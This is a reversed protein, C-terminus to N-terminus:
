DRLSGIPVIHIGEPLTYAHNNGVICILASPLAMKMYPDSVTANYEEIERKIELLHKSAEKAQFDTLKVEILAYRGDKLVLVADCELGIRDRYYFIKGGFASSYVRLDRIVLSEFFFGYDLNNDLLFDVNLNLAAIALSPDCFDKKIATQMNVKSKFKPSWPPVDELVFLNQLVEKYSYLTRDSLDFDAGNTDAFIKRNKTLSCINKAYVTLFRRALVPDREVGDFDKIDHEVVGDLYDKPIKVAEDPPLGISAPFGGRVTAFVLDRHSLTSDLGTVSYGPEFLRKLSIKGNSEKSEFLSLPRMLFEVFRGTGSHRIPAIDVGDKKPHPITSGTLLYQGPANFSDDIQEKIENWIDPYNQWEDFLIPKEKGFIFSPDAHLGLILNDLQRSSGLRYVTKAYKRCTTTKGIFKLGKVYIAPKYKLANEIESDIIRPLYLNENVM